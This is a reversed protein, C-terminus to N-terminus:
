AGEPEPDMIRGVAAACSAWEAHEQKLRKRGTATLRYFKARRNHDSTDWKSEIWGKM